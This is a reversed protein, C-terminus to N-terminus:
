AAESQPRPRPLQRLATALLSVLQGVAATSLLWIFPLLSIVYREEWRATLAVGLIGIGGVILLVTAAQRSRQPGVFPLILILLGGITLIFLLRNLSQAVQWPIRTLKSDGPLTTAGPNLARIYGRTKFIQDNNGDATFTRPDLVERSLGLSEITSEAYAGPNDRIAERALAGMTGYAERPTKGEAVLANFVGSTTGASAHPVAPDATDYVRLALRGDATDPSPPVEGWSVARAYLALGSESSVNPDGFRILNHVCWPALVIAMAGIAIASSRLAPKWRPASALLALPIAALAILGNARVLTAIGFAVGTAALLEWGADGARLRIASEALLVAAIFFAVGFLYDSLALQEVAIVLPSAAMLFGALVAPVPSFYRWGVLVVFAPLAIGVLNQLFVVGHIPDIGVLEFLALLTAYGPARVNDAFGGHFVNRAIALYQDTDPATFASGLLPARVVAAVLTVAALSITRRM